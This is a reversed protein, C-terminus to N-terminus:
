KDADWEHGCNNCKALVEPHREDYNIEYGLMAPEEMETWDYRGKKEDYQWTVAMIEILSIDARSAGCKPCVSERKYKWNPFAKM